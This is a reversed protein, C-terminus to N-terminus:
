VGLDKIEQLFATIRGQSYAVHDFESEAAHGELSERAQVIAWMACMAHSAPSWIRVQYDLKSILDELNEEKVPLKGFIASHKLYAIYFNRRERLTPYEGTDPVDPNSPRYNATWGQFHNAIDYPAPNPGAYEFDVLM